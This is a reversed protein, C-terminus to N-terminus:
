VTFKGALLVQELKELAWVLAKLEKKTTASYNLEAGRFARSM